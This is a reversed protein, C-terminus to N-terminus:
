KNLEPAAGGAAPQPDSATRAADTDTAGADAKKEAHDHDKHGDGKAKEIAGGAIRDGSNGAPDTKLDDAKAHVVVSRGIIGDKEGDLTVGHAMIETKVNGKDDATINGLDGGHRDDGEPGGHKKGGPNFHGGASKLDPSSVDGKEHIHFGHKSNPAFGKLDVMAKVGHEAAMFKVTGTVKEDKAVGSPKVHAVAAAHHDADKDAAAATQATDGLGVRPQNQNAAAPGANAAAQDAKATAQDAQATAQDAQAAAQDAKAAGQDAQAVVQDAQAKAQDAQAAVQDPKAAAHEARAATAAETSNQQDISAPGQGSAAATEGPTATASAKASSTQGGTTVNGTTQGSATTGTGNRAGVGPQGSSQSWATKSSSSTSASSSSDHECGTGVIGVSLLGAAAAALLLSRNM